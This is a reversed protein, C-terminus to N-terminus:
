PLYQERVAMVENDQVTLRFPIKHWRSKDDSFLYVWTQLPVVQDWQPTGSATQSLTQMEVTAQDALLLMSTTTTTNRLYFGNTVCGTTTAQCLGDERAKQDAEQGVFWEVPDITVYYKGDQQEIKEVYALRDSNTQSPLQQHDPQAYKRTQLWGYGFWGGGLLLAITLFIIVWAWGTMGSARGLREIPSNLKAVM